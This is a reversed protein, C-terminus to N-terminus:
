IDLNKALLAHKKIFDRRLEVVEGMLVSFIDDAKVADEVCVQKLTRTEPNMTTEWLQEPNMEGLGKFRQISLGKRGFEMTFKIMDAVRECEALVENQDNYIFLPKALAEVIKPQLYFIDAYEAFNIIETDIVLEKQDLRITLYYTETKEDFRLDAADCLPELDSQVTKILQEDGFQQRRNFNNKVLVQIINLPYGAQLLHESARNYDILNLVLAKLASGTLPQKMCGSQFYLKKCSNDLIFTEFARDDVLYTEKKGSTVKYLPPEAIYLYGKEIILPMQRFFFTLLLTRIHSGDVDADTMIIIKHYRTRSIDFDEHGIGSGIATILTKIEENGLMKDFRAKEVNLLKGRLPLIAQFRRDRGQKASGGASDGEVIFIESFAPDRQSCDALKGPLTTTELAGKRRTLERATKAADRARAALVAKEIITKIIPPNEEFYIGLQDNVITEVVGRVESNGLKMKTQGEFQPDPVKVAIVATIGERIDEGTLSSKIDKILKNETAYSNISRTLATKFGVLHTGGEHTHINNVYCLINEQFSDNYQFAIDVIIDNKIGELVIPKKHLPHKNRNLFEVFSSIGGDYKFEEKLDKKRLDVVTIMLGKNLFALERLRISLTEYNFERIEFIESDPMFRIKTGMKETPGVNKLETVPKGREYRQKWICQDRWIELELWESLANVVSLGVGHLGGSVQYSKKDFKGGAHLTTLVVEAGPKKEQPHIDVPIGRGNDIVTVSDDLHILVDIRDCVGAMAEDISNDVIEYVLHHLGETSTSGIYMAPRKRVAEIGELVKINDSTYSSNVQGNQGPEESERKM